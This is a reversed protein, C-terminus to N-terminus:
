ETYGRVTEDPSAHKRALLNRTRSIYTALLLPKIRLCVAKTMFCRLHTWQSLSITFLNPLPNNIYFFAKIISYLIHTHNVKYTETVTLNLHSLAM